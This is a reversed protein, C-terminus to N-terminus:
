TVALRVFRLDDNQEFKAKNGTYMVRVKVKEWDFRLEVNRSAAWV